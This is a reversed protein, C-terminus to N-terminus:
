EPFGFGLTEPLFCGNEQYNEMWNGKHQLTSVVEEGDNGLTCQRPGQVGLIFEAAERSVVEADPNKNWVRFM